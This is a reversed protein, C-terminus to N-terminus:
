ERAACETRLFIANPDECLAVLARM